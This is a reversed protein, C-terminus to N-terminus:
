RQNHVVMLIVVFVCLQVTVVLKIWLPIASIKEIVLKGIVFPSYATAIVAYLIVPLAALLIILGIVGLIIGGAITLM